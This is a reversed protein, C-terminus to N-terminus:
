CLALQADADQPKQRLQEHAVGLAAHLGKVTRARKRCSACRIATSYFVFHLTEYWFKKESATFVFPFKCAECQRAEDEYFYFPEDNGRSIQREVNGRIAGAPM